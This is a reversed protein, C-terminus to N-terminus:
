DVPLEAWVRKGDPVPTTGWGAALEEVLVLGRGNDALVDPADHEPREPSPDQVQVVIRDLRRGISLTVAGRSHRIANTVLEDVVLEVDAAQDELGWRSLCERAFHRAEAVSSGDPELRILQPLAAPM